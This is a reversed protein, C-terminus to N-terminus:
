EVTLGLFHVKVYFGQNPTSPPVSNQVEGFGDAIVGISNEARIERQHFVGRSQVGFYLKDTTESLWMSPLPNDRERDINKRPASYISVTPDKFEDSKVKLKAKSAIDFILLEPQPQNEEGPMAYRYTELTPRPNALANIVWLDGVKREDEGSAEEAYEPTSGWQGPDYYGTSEFEVLLGWDGPDEGGPVLRTLRGRTRPPLERWALDLSGPVNRWSRGRGALVERAALLMERAMDGPRM